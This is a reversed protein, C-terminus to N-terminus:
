LESTMKQWIRCPVVLDDHFATMKGAEIACVPGSTFRWQKLVLFGYRFGGFLMEFITVKKVDISLSKTNKSLNINVKAICSM